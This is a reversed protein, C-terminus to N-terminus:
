HSPKPLNEIDWITVRTDLSGTALTRGDPSFAIGVVIDRFTGEIVATVKTKKVDWLTVRPGNAAGKGSVALTKGDKSVAIRYLRADAKAIADVEKGNSSDTFVVDTGQLSILQKGDPSYVFETGGGIFLERRTATDWVHVGSAFFGGGTAFTKGDPSFAVAVVSDKHGKLSEIEKYTALDWLRAEGPQGGLIPNGGSLLLKGDPSFAIANIGGRHGALSGKEKGTEVDWLRINLDSPGMSKTGGGTALIKGDPSFAVRCYTGDHAQWRRLEKGSTTDWVKVSGDNCGVALLKGDPSFAVSTAGGAHGKLVFLDPDAARARTPPGKPNKDTAESPSSTAPNTDPRPTVSGKAVPEAGTQSPAAPRSCGILGALVLSLTATVPTPKVLMEREKPM